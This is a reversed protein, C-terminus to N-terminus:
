RLRWLSVPLANKREFRDVLELSLARSFEQDRDAPLLLYRAGVRAVDDPSYGRFPVVVRHRFDPGMAFYSAPQGALSLV